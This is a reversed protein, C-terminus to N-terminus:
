VAQAEKFLRRSTKDDSEAPQIAENLDRLYEIGRQRAEEIAETIAQSPHRICNIRSYDDVLECFYEADETDCFYVIGDLIVKLCVKREDNGELLVGRIEYAQTIQGISYGEELYKCIILLDPRSGGTVLGIFDAFEQDSLCQVEGSRIIRDTMRVLNKKPVGASKLADTVKQLDHHVIETGTSM